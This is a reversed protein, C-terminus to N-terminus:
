RAPVYPEIRFRELLPINRQFDYYTLQQLERLANEFGLYAELFNSATDSEREITQLVDVLAVEGTRYRDLTTGTIQRALDLNAQMNLARQEYEELNAVQNAVNTEISSRAEETELDTRDLAFRGARIRHKREGWDWLPISGSVNVTYSNRPETWLNGFRPDQMERGYTVELNLRFSDNGRTQALEIEGERRDIALERLRPAITTALQVAREHDVDVPVVRLVPDVAITDAASLRLRQKIQSARLRFSSAAQQGDERANALEVQLRDLEIARSSDAAVRDRAAASAKELNALRSAAIVREYAVELLEFYDEALDNVMEVVDGQYELESRELDLRAEELDNKMENPQFLPQQYGIFYRNYFRVDREDGIQSYRYVRNNLSLNGNTPFGFLIVPQRVSLDLQWRRTNEYILENRQLTSNWKYDSISEFEPAAIELEV